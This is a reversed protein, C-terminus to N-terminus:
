SAISQLIDQPDIAIHSVRLMVERGHTQCAIFGGKKFVTTAGILRQASIYFCKTAEFVHFSILDCCMLSKLVESRYPFTKYIDSSPFHSHMSFGIKANINQVRLFFPVLLMFTDHVWLMDKTENQFKETALKAYMKNIDVYM